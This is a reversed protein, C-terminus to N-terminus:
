AEDDQPIRIPCSGEKSGHLFLIYRSGERGLRIVMRDNVDQPKFGWYKESIFDTEITSKLDEWFQSGKLTQVLDWNNPNEALMKDWDSPQGWNNTYNRNEIITKINLVLVPGLQYTQIGGTRDPRGKKSTEILSKISICKVQIGDVSLFNNGSIVVNSKQFKKDGCLIYNSEGSKLEEEFVLKVELYYSIRSRRTKRFDTFDKKEIIFFAIGVLGINIADELQNIELARVIANIDIIEGNSYKLYYKENFKRMFDYVRKRRQDEALIVGKDGKTIILRPNLKGYKVYKDIVDQYTKDLGSKDKDELLVQGFSAQDEERDRKRYDGWVNDIPSFFRFAESSPDYRGLYDGSPDTDEYRLRRDFSRGDDFLVYM